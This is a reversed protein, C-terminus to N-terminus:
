SEQRENRRDAKNKELVLKLAFYLFVAIIAYIIIKM